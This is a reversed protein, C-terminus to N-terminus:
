KTDKTFKILMNTIGGRLKDTVVLGSPIAPSIGERAKSGPLAAGRM